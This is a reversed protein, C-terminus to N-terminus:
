VMADEREELWLDLERLRYLVRSHAAGTRIFKPGTGRYRWNTLTRSTIGLYEAAQKSTLTRNCMYDKNVNNHKKM